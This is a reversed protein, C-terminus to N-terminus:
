ISFRRPILVAERLTFGRSTTYTHGTYKLEDYESITLIRLPHEGESFLTGLLRDLILRTETKLDPELIARELEESPERESIRRLQAVIICVLAGGLVVSLTLMIIAVYDSVLNFTHLVVAVIMLGVILLLIFWAYNMFLKERLSWTSQKKEKLLQAHIKCSEPDLKKLAFNTVSFGMSTYRSFEEPPSPEVINGIDAYGELLMDLFLITVSLLGRSVGKLGYQTSRASLKIAIMLMVIVGICLPSVLMLLLLLFDSESAILTFLFLGVVSGIAGVLIPALMYMIERSNMSDEQYVRSDRREVVKMFENLESNQSENM